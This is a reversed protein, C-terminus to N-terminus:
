SMGAGADFDHVEPTRDDGGIRIGRGRCSGEVKRRKEVRVMENGEREKKGTKRTEAGGGIKAERGRGTESDDQDSDEPSGQRLGVVGLGALM